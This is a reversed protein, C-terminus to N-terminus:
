IDQHKKMKDKGEKSGEKTNWQNKKKLYCTKIEKENGNTYIKYNKKKTVITVYFIKLNYCNM